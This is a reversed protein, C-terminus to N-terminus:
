KLKKVYHKKIYGTKTGVKVKYFSGKSGMISVGQHKKARALIKSKLSTSKRLAVLKKCNVIKGNHGWKANLAINGAKSKTAKSTVRNGYKSHYWGKFLYGKRSPTPLTGIRGMYAVTKGKSKVTGGKANYTITYKAKEWHAYLSQNANAVFDQGNSIHTGGTQATYWGTFKHGYKAPTPLNQYKDGEKISLVNNTLSNGGNTNLTITHEIASETPETLENAKAKFTAVIVQNSMINSITYKNDGDLSIPSGNVTVKEIDYGAYPMVSFTHNAGQEVDINGSPTISGGTTSTSSVTYKVPPQPNIPPQPANIKVVTDGELQELNNLSKDYFTDGTTLKWHYTKQAGASLTAIDDKLATLDNFNDSGSSWKINVDKSSQTHSDISPTDYAQISDIKLLSEDIPDSANNLIMSETPKSNLPVKNFNVNNHITITYFLDDDDLYAPDTEDSEYFKFTITDENPGVIFGCLGDSDVSPDTWTSVDTVKGLSSMRGDTYGGGEISYLDLVDQNEQLLKVDDNATSIIDQMDGMKFALIKYRGMLPSSLQSYYNDGVAGKSVITLFDDKFIKQDSDSADFLPDAYNVDGSITIDKGIETGQDDVDEVVVNHVGGKFAIFDDPTDAFASTPFLGVLLVFALTIILNRKTVLSM